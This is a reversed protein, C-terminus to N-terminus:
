PKGVREIADYSTNMSPTYRTIPEYAGGVCLTVLTITM